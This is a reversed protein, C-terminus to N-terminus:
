KGLVFKQFYFKQYFPYTEHANWFIAENGELFTKKNDDPYMLERKETDRIPKSIIKWFKKEDYTNLLIEIKKFNWRKLKCKNENNPNLIKEHINAEQMLEEFIQNKDKM